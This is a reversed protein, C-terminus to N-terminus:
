GALLAAPPTHVARWAPLWAGAIAAVALLAGLRAVDGPDWSPLGAVLGSVADWVMMGLWSGFAVGGVAVLLARWLVHAILRRRRAGVARRLALEGLLSSVWLWMMAFTGLTAIALVAWGESTFFREFWRLPAADAALLDAEGRRVVDPAAPAFAAAIALAVDARASGPAGRARVLLEAPAPPHQLVSLYVALRPVLGGGVGTPERDDVVGVVTYATPLHGLTLTRGVADRPQLPFALSRSIVAVRRGSWDDADELARGALLRLGMAGFSDASVAYYAVRCGKLPVRALGPSCVSFESWVFDVPGLGTLAGPNALSAVRVGRDDRLRHLLSAYDAARVALPADPPTIRYVQGPGSDGSGSATVRAAGRNLLAATALITLSLGLQAAPIALGVPTSETVAILQSRRAFILPFLAGLVIGGLSIAVATLAPALAGAGASGPWTAAALRAGIAGAAWGVALALAAVCAGEILAAGFLFRRSAGVARRVGIETARADARATAVSLTTLLAV